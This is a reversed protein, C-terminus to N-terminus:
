DKTIYTTSFTVAGVFNTSFSGGLSGNDSMTLTATKGIDAGTTIVIGGTSPRLPRQKTTTVLDAPVWGGVIPKFEVNLQVISGVRNALASNVYTPNFNFDGSVNKLENYENMEVTQLEDYEKISENANPKRIAM